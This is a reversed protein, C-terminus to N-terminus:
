HCVRVEPKNLWNTKFFDTLKKQIDTNPVLVISLDSESFLICNDQNKKSVIRWENEIQFDYDIEYNKYVDYVDEVCKKALNLRRFEKFSKYMKKPKRFTSIEIELERKKSNEKTNLNSNYFYSNLQRVKEDHILKSEKYYYVKKVGNKELFEKHFIIGLQGYRRVLISNTVDNMSIDTFCIMPIDERMYSFHNESINGNNLVDIEIYNPGTKVNQLPINKIKAGTFALHYQPKIRPIFEPNKRFLLKRKSFINKIACEIQRKLDTKYKSYAFHILM